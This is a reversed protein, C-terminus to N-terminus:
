EKPREADVINSVEKTFRALESLTMARLESIPQGGYRGGYAFLEWLREDLGNRSEAQAVAVTLM